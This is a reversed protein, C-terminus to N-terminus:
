RLLRIELPLALEAWVRDCTLVPLGFSPPWTPM